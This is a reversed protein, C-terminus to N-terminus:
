FRKGGRAREGAERAPFGGGKALAVCAIVLLVVVIGAFIMQGGEYPTSAPALPTSFYALEQALPTALPTRVESRWGGPDAGFRCRGTALSARINVTRVEEDNGGKTASRCLPSGHAQGFTGVVGWLGYVLVSLPPPLVFDGPLTAVEGEVGVDQPATRHHCVVAGSLTGSGPLSPRYADGFAGRAPIGELRNLPGVEASM